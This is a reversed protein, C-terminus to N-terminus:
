DYFSWIIRVYRLRMLTRMKLYKVQRLWKDLPSGLPYIKKKFLAFLKYLHKKSRYTHMIFAFVVIFQVSNNTSTWSSIGFIFYFSSYSHIFHEISYILLGLILSSATSSVYLPTNLPIKCKVIIRTIWLFVFLVCEKRSM